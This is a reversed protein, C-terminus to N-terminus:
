SGAGYKQHGGNKANIEKLIEVNLDREALLKQLRESEPELARLRKVDMADMAGFHKRWPYVPAEAVSTHDAARLVAVM